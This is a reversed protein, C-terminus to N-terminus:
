KDKKDGAPPETGKPKADLPTGDAKYLTVKASDRLRKIEDRAIKQAMSSRLQAKVAEFKPAAKTKKDTVYIVHWGFQTQVPTKSYEGKKLAFAVKSFPKVMSRKTFFGLDGGRAKSPGISKARALKDFKEGKELQQIIAMAEKKTKVLIHSAKVQEEGKFNSVYAAYREKLAADTIKKDVVSRIYAEQIVRDRLNALQKKVEPTDQLGATKGASALLHIAIVQELLPKYLRAMPIARIRAPLSRHVAELDSRYIKHGNVEAVVPNKPEKVDKALAPGALLGGTLTAGLILTAAIMRPKLAIM